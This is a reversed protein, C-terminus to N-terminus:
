LGGRYTVCACLLWALFKRLQVQMLFSSARGKSSAAVTPMNDGLLLLRRGRVNPERCARRVTLQRATSEMVTIHRVPKRWPSAFVINWAAQEVVSSPVEAFSTFIGLGLIQEESLLRVANDDIIEDDVVRDRPRTPDGAALKFRLREKQRGVPAVTSVPLTARM